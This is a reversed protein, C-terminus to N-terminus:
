NTPKDPVNKYFPDKSNPSAKESHYGANSGLSTCASTTLAVVDILLTLKAVTLVKRLAISGTTFNKM